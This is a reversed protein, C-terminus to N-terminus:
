TNKLKIGLQDFVNNEIMWDESLRYKQAKKFNEKAFPLM